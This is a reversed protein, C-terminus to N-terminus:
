HRHREAACHVRRRLELRTTPINTISPTPSPTAQGITFSQQIGSAAAYNTSSATQATLTCTGATVYTVALGSATCVSPTSSTVSQAGDTDTANLQATFGGGSSWTPNSPLNSISPTPSATAQGITFHRLHLPRITTLDGNYTAPYSYTGANLNSTPDSNPVSGDSNFNM